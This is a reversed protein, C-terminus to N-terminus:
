ARPGRGENFHGAAVMLQLEVARGLVGVGIAVSADVMVDEDNRQEVPQPLHGRALPCAGAQAAQRWRRGAASLGRRSPGSRGGSHACGDGVPRGQQGQRWRYRRPHVGRGFAGSDLADGKWQPFLDGTYIMLGGPSIAPNWWVKPEEFRQGAHDDPIDEGGYHSGYSARPWGYNKGPLILNVEDGGQPGMESAWLRGDPAFDLGLVNRHGMSYYSSTRGGRSAWPGPIAQGEDTLHVIKGLDSGLDQAPTMKQRDSSSLFMTGDRAFVLRHGFHGNGTVKPTQRWIVKFGEIRPAGQGLILRGYGLAAGSTGGPGPEAFSLYIRQNGAFGPHAVVDGLGGQGADKVAPVGTVEQKRGTASDLLWLKGSKETVLAMGTMPLGSGPLFALAWPGDFTAVETM